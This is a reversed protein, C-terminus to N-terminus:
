QGETGDPVFLIGRDQLGELAYATTRGHRDSILANDRSHEGAVTGEYVTKVAPAQPRATLKKHLSIANRRPKPSFCHASLPNKITLIHNKAQHVHHVSPCKEDDSSM